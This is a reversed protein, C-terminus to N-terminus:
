RARPMRGLATSAKGLAWLWDRRNPEHSDSRRVVTVRGRTVGLLGIQRASCESVIRPVREILTCPLAVYSATSFATYRTAQRVAERWKTVKAEISIVEARLCMGARPAYLRLSDGRVINARRLTAIAMSTRDETISLNEAIARLSIHGAMLIESLVWRQLLSLSGLNERETKRLRCVVVIDPVSAGLQMQSVLCGPQPLRGRFISRPLNRVLSRVLQAETAFTM